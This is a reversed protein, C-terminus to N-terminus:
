LLLQIYASSLKYVKNKKTLAEFSLTIDYTFASLM